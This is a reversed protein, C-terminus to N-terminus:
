PASPRVAPNLRAVAGQEPTVVGASIGDTQLWFMLNSGGGCTGGDSTCQSTLVQPASSTGCRTRSAGACQSCPCAPTDRLPDFSEGHQETTHYLGLWHGTEHASVLALSDSGCRATDITGDPNCTGAGLDAGIAVAAGSSVIGPFLSPGPVTGDIGAIVQGAGVDKSTLDDVFFLHVANVPQALTFLQAQPDCPGSLDINVTHWRDKAWQPVDYVRIAGVCVGLRALFARYSQAWRVFGPDNAADAATLTGTTVLYVAVDLAGSQPVPATSALVTVDYAGTTAGTFEWSWDGVTLSWPGSPLAGAALLDDLGRSTNPLTFAGAGVASGAAYALLNAYANPESVPYPIAADDYIVKAGYAVDTPAVYNPITRGAYTFSDPVSGNVEQAVVSLATAGAPVSFPLTSGVAAGTAHAVVSVSAPIGVAAQVPLVCQPPSAQYRSEPNQAGFQISGANAIAPGGGGCTGTGARAVCAGGVCALPAACPATPGCTGGTALATCRGFVCGLGPPCASALDCADGARAPAALCRSDICALSAACGFDPLLCQDGLQGVYTTRKKSSGGCGTLLVTSALAIALARGLM